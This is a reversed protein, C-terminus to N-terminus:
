NKFVTSINQQEKINIKKLHNLDRKLSYYLNLNQINDLEIFYNSGFIPMTSIDPM